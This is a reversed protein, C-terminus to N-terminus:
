SVPVPQSTSASGSAAAPADAPSRGLVSSLVAQLAEAPQGPMADVHWAVVHDPRVLIAGTEDPLCLRAFDGYPDEYRQRPGVVHVTIPLGFRQAVQRAAAQWAQGALGTLLTFAGGGCLDLSSVRHQRETLWVHPLRRGSQLGLIVQLEPDAVTLNVDDPIVAGSVYRLNFEGGVASFGYVLGAMAERFERRRLMGATTPAEFATILADMEAQDQAHRTLGLATAIQGFLAMNRMTKTVLAEAVPQREADYSDLLAEGAQGALVLALKWALNYADQLATNSGLGNMPPHRHVADGMAFVRGSRLRTAHIENITWTTTAELEVPITDDGLLRHVVAVAEADSLKPPPEAPDYGWSAIWRDWARVLRLGGIGYGMIGHGPQIMWYMDGPRHEIFRRLDARFGIGISAGLMSRGELPLGLQKVVRSNGGDAGIMYRARIRYQAGALRDLVTATVGDEDQTFSVLETGFRVRAGRRAAETVIIPEMMEQTLDVMMCPSALDHQAQLLPHTSWAEFRGLEQGALSTCYVNDRMLQHPTAVAMAQRELGFERMIEMARQNTIHARPTPSTSGYKNLCIVRVGYSALALAATAGAPGAGVVLVDTEIDNM